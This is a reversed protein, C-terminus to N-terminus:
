LPREEDPTSDFELESALLPAPAGFGQDLRKMTFRAIEACVRGDPAALTIDFSAFGPEVPNIRIHSVIGAPLPGFVTVSGYSVPVWLSRASYGEILGMAWGTAIDMLSPHLVFGATLDGRFAEPLALHALGEGQGLAARRLVRWRPGFALHAEQPSRIGAPDETIDKACRTSIADIDLTDPVSRPGLLLRAQANLAFGRRGRLEAESRLEIAYGEDTRALTLRIERPSDVELARFFVLDRIEFAGTEGQGRLAEAALELIGTGPLIARGDKTRHEDLVWQDTTLRATFRRNHAADFGAEDLLPLDVPTAPLAPTQGLRAAMAEAAMGVDAWIGWNLALVRTKGGARSRAFANLYENAAVYDVQGAPATLTSTSSFLVMVKVAGDPLLTDLVRLGHVKPALVADVASTTKAMLPADDIHGAAHIVGHIPGLTNRIEDLSARMDDINCVDGAAVHVQGGLAELREVARIRGARPDHAADRLAAWETRPPLPTRAILAIRADSRRILEEALTLGIGGFGGTIVWVAGQPLDPAEPATLALPRLVQEYRRGARLGAITNGPTALLEELIPWTLASDAGKRPEIDLTSVTIGPMEHPLVRAPGAIAAKEPWPLAEDRLRAAGATIVTIHLPGAISEGGLAQGLFLLSHFGQEMHHQFLNSGPRFRPNGGALWFHAIRSPLTGRAILDQILLDYGERGREPALQYAGEGLRRFTD